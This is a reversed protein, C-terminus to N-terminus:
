EDEDSDDMITRKTRKSLPQQQRAASQEEDEEGNGEASGPRESAEAARRTRDRKSPRVEEEEDDDEDEEEDEMERDRHSARANGRKSGLWRDGEEDDGDDDGYGEEDKVIFDAMEEDDDYYSMQQRARGRMRGMSSEYQRDMGGEDMGEELYAASMAPLRMMRMARRGEGSARLRRERRIREDDEKLRAEKIREPNLKNHEFGKKSGKSASMRPDKKRLYAEMQQHVQSALSSPRLICKNTLAALREFALTSQVAEAAATVPNLPDPASMAQAYAFCNAVPRLELDLVAEGVILETSGDTYRVLRANSEVARRGSVPDLLERWRLVVPAGEFQAAEADRDHTDPRFPQQQIRVFPPLKVYANLSEKEEEERPLSLEPLCLTLSVKERVASSKDKAEDDDDDDHGDEEDDDRFKYRSASADHIVEKRDAPTPSPKSLNDPKSPSFEAEEEEDSEDGFITRLKTKLTEQSPEDKLPADEEREDDDSDEGFMELRSPVDKSPEVEEM